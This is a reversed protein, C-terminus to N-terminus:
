TPTASSWRSLVSDGIQIRATTLLHLDLSTPEVGLYVVLKGSPARRRGDEARGPCSSFRGSGSARGGCGGPGRGAGPSTAGGPSSRM